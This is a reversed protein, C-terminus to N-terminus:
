INNEANYKIEWKEYKIYQLIAMYRLAIWMLADYFQEKKIETSFCYKEIVSIDIPLELKRNKYGMVKYLIDTAIMDCEEIISIFGDKKSQYYDTINDIYKSIESYKEIDLVKMLEKLSNNILLSMVENRKDEPLETIKSIIENLDLDLVEMIKVLDSSIINTIGDVVEKSTFEKTDKRM